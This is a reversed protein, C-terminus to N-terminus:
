TTSQNDDYQMSRYHTLWMIENYSSQLAAKVTKVKPALCVKNRLNNQAYFPTNENFVLHVINLCKLCKLCKLGRM